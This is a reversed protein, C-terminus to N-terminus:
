PKPPPCNGLIKIQEPKRLSITHRGQKPSKELLGTIRVLKQNYESATLFKHQDSGWIVVTFLNRPYPDFMNIFLPKGNTELRLSAGAVCGELVVIEGEHRIIEKPDTFVMSPLQSAHGGTQLEQETQAFTGSTYLLLLALWSLGKQMSPLIKPLPLFARSLQASCMKLGFKM